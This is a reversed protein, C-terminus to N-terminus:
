DFKLTKDPSIRSVVMSPVVLMGMGVVFATLNLALVHLGNLSIPVEALFYYQEDLKVIGFQKQLLCLSIGLITGIILGKFMIYAAQILFVKRISENNAGIAKLLGITGTRELIIILLGSIMNIGAVLLMLIILVTANVDQLGLWDFINPYLEAISQVKLRSDDDLFIFGVIDDVEIALDEVNDLNDVLLEYGSVQNAAWGNLKQIHRLDCLVFMKDFEPMKTDYIGTVKFRRFRLPEQVFFIDYTDNIKLKLLNALTRSILTQNTSATDNIQPCSGEVLNQSFFSWNYDSAVGKLVVGQIDSQTKIIGAKTGYVQIHQIGEIRAVDHMCDLNAPIPNTEFSQNSDYNTIQIHSGFGVVKSKIEHKFGVIVAIAVIMIALSLAISTITIRIFPKSLGVGDSGSLFRKALYNEFRM